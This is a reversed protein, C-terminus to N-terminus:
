LRLLSRVSYKDKKVLHRSLLAVMQSGTIAGARKLAVLLDNTDDRVIKDGALRTVSEAWVDAYTREYLVGHKKAIDNAIARVSRPFKGHKGAKMANVNVVYKM